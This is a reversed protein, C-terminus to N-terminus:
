MYEELVIKGWEVWPGPQNGSTLENITYNSECDSVLNYIFVM